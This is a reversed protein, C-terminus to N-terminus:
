SVVMSGVAALVLGLEVWILGAWDLGAWLFLREKWTWWALSSLGCFTDVEKLLGPFGSKTVIPGPEVAAM